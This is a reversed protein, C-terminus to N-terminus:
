QFDFGKLANAQISVFVFHRTTLDIPDNQFFYRFTFSLLAQVLIINPHVRFIMLATTYSFSTIVACEFPTAATRENVLNFFIPRSLYYIASATLSMGVSALPGDPASSNILCSLTFSIAAAKLANYAYTDLAGVNAAM